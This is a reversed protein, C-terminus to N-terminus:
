KNNGILDKIFNPNFKNLTLSFQGDILCKYTKYNYESYMVLIQNEDKIPYGNITFNDHSMECIDQAIIKKRKEIDTVKNLDCRAESFSAIRLVTSEFKTPIEM